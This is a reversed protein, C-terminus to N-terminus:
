QEMQYQLHIKVGDTEAHLCMLINHIDIHICYILYLENRM